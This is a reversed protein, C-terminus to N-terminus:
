PSTGSIPANIPTTLVGPASNIISNEISIHNTSISKCIHRMCFDYESFVINDMIEPTSLSPRPKDFTNIKTLPIASESTALPRTRKAQPKVDCIENALYDVLGTLGTPSPSKPVGLFMSVDTSSLRYETSQVRITPPSSSSSAPTVRGGRNSEMITPRTRIAFVEGALVLRSNVHFPLRLGYKSSLIYYAIVLMTFAFLLTVMVIFCITILRVFEM